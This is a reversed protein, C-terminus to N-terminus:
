MESILTCAEVANCRTSRCGSRAAGASAAILSALLSASTSSRDITPIM